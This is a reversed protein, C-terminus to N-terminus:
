EALAVLGATIKVPCLCILDDDAALEGVGVGLDCTKRVMDEKVIMEM